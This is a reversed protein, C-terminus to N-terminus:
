STPAFLEPHLDHLSLALVQYALDVVQQVLGTQVAEVEAVRDVEVLIVDQDNMRRMATFDDRAHTLLVRGLKPTPNLLLHM